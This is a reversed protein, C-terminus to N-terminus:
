YNGMVSILLAVIGLSTLLFCCLQFQEGSVRGSLKKIFGKHFFSMIPLKAKAQLSKTWNQIVAPKSTAFIYKLYGFNEWSVGIVGTSSSNTYNNM